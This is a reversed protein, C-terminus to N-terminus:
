YNLDINKNPCIQNLACDVQGHQHHKYDYPRPQM